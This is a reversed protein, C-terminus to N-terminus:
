EALPQVQVNRFERLTVQGPPAGRQKRVDRCSCVHVNVRGANKAKSHRAALAAAYRLTGRPLRELGEPNRVIVHSGSESAVHLWFDRKSALKFTLVDNDRASKGV